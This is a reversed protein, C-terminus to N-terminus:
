RELADLRVGDADVELPVLEAGASRFAEWAPPYGFSEVGIRAGPALLSHAALWIAQQSGRTVLVDDASAALGRVRSLMDALAARLGEDGRPDGYALVRSSHKRLVGRYARALREHPFL